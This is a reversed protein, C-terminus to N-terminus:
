KLLQVHVLVYHLLLMMLWVCANTLNYKLPMFVSIILCLIIIVENILPLVEHFHM